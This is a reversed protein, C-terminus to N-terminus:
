FADLEEMLDDDVSAAEGGDWPSEEVAEFGDDEAEVQEPAAKKREVRIYQSINSRVQGSPTENDVVVVDLTRGIFKSEPISLRKRPTPINLAEMLAVMRFMAKETLTLTDVLTKGDYEGGMIRMYATIKPDGKATEGPEMDEIQVRYRGPTVYAGFRDRYNTLDLQIAM